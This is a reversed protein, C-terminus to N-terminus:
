DDPVGDGDTLSGGDIVRSPRCNFCKINGSGRDATALDLAVTGGADTLNAVPTLRLERSGVVPTTFRYTRASNEGNSLNGLPHLRTYVIPPFVETDGGSVNISINTIAKTTANFDFKGTATGGDDFTVGTLTWTTVPTGPTLLPCGSITLSLIILAFSGTHQRASM